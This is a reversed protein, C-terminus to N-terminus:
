IISYGYMHEDSNASYFQVLIILYSFITGVMAVLLPKSVTFLGGASPMPTLAHLQM